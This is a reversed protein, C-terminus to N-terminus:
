LTEMRLKRIVLTEMRLKRIFGGFHGFNVCILGKRQSFEPQLSYYAFPKPAVM